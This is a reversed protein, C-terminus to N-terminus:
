IDEPLVIKPRADKINVIKIKIPFKEIPNMKVVIDEEIMEDLTIQYDSEAKQFAECESEISPSINISSVDTTNEKTHILNSFIDLTYKSSVKGVHSNVFQYNERTEWFTDTTALEQLM